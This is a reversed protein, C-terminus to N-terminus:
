RRLETHYMEIAYIEMLQAATGNSMRFQISRGVQGVVVAASKLRTGTGTTMDITVSSFSGEDISYEFTLNGASQKKFYVFVQGFRQQNAFEFVKSTWTASITESGSTTDLKIFSDQSRTDDAQVAYLSTTGNYTHYAIDQINRSASSTGNVVFRWIADNEDIVLIMNKVSNAGDASASFDTSLVACWYRGEVLISRPERAVYSGSTSQAPYYYAIARLSDQAVDFQNLKGIVGSTFFYMGLRGVMIFGGKWPQISASTSAQFDSPTVVQTLTYTPNTPDFVDGTLLYASKSKLILISYGVNYIGVIEQGDDPSVDIFNASPWTEPTKITSWSIRSPNAVTRAAFVYNKFVIAFWAKPLADVWAISTGDWSFGGPISGSGLVYVKSNMTVFSCQSDTQPFCGTITYARGSTTATYASSVTIDTDSNVATIRRAVIAQVVGNAADTNLIITAGVRATTLFATGTGIFTTSANTTAITGAASVKQLGWASGSFVTPIYHTDKGGVSVGDYYQVKAMAILYEVGTTAGLIFNYLRYAYWYLAPYSGDAMSTSAIIQRRKALANKEWWVDRCTASQFVNIKNPAPYNALGGKLDEWLEKKESTSM